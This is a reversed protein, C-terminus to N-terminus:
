DKQPLGALALIRNHIATVENALHPEGAVRLNSVLLDSITIAEELAKRRTSSLLHNALASREGDSLTAIFDDIDKRNPM